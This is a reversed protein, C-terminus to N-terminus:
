AELCNSCRKMWRPAPQQGPLRGWCVVSGEKYKTIHLVNCVSLTIDGDVDLNWKFVRNWFKLM